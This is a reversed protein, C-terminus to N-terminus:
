DENHDRFEVTGICEAYKLISDFRTTTQKSEAEYM